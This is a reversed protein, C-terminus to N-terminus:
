VVVSGESHQTHLGSVAIDHARGRCNRWQLKEITRAVLLSSAGFIRQQKTRLEGGRSRQDWWSCPSWLQGKPTSRTCVQFLLITHEGVATEGSCNKSRRPAVVSRFDAALSQRVNPRSLSLSVCVSPSPTRALSRCHNSLSFLPVFCLARTLALAPFHSLSLSLSLSLAIM